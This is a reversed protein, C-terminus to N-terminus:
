GSASVFVRLVRLKFKLPRGILGHARLRETSLNPIARDLDLGAGEAVDFQFTEQALDHLGPFQEWLFGFSQRDELVFRLFDRLNRVFLVLEAKGPNESSAIEDFWM